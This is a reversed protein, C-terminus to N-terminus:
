AACDTCFRTYWVRKIVQLIATDTLVLCDLVIVSFWKAFIILSCRIQRDQKYEQM